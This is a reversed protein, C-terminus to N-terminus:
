KGAARSVGASRRRAVLLRDGPTSHSATALAYGCNPCKEGLSGDITGDAEYPFTMGCNPCRALRHPGLLTPAMSGSSVVIPVLWGEVFWQSLMVVAIGLLLGAELLWRVFAGRRCSPVSADM